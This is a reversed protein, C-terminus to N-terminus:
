ASREPPRTLNLTDSLAKDEAEPAELVSKEAADRSDRVKVRFSRYGLIRFGSIWVRLM